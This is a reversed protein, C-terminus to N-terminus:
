DGGIVLEGNGVTRSKGDLGVLEVSLRHRGSRSIGSEFHADFESTRDVITILVTGLSPEDSRNINRYVAVKLWGDRPNEESPVITGHVTFPKNVKLTSQSVVLSQAENSTALSVETLNIVPNPPGIRKPVVAQRSCSLCLAVLLALVSGYSTPRFFQNSAIM